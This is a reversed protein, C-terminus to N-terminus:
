GMVLFFRKGKDAKIKVKTKTINEKQAHTSPYLPLELCLCPNNQISLTDRSLILIWADCIRREPPDARAVGRVYTQVIHPHNVRVVAPTRM